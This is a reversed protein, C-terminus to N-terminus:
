ATVISQSSLYSDLFESLLALTKDLLAELNGLDANMKRTAEQLPGQRGLSESWSADRRIPVTLFFSGDMPVHAGRAFHVVNDRIARADDNFKRWQDELGAQGEAIIFEYLDRDKRQQCGTLVKLWKWTGHVANRANGLHQYFVDFAEWFRFYKWAVDPLKLAAIAESNQFHAGALNCFMGYNVMAIREQCKHIRGAERGDFGVPFTWGRPRLRRTLPPDFDVGIYKEWFEGYQPFGPLVDAAFLKEICDHSDDPFVQSM